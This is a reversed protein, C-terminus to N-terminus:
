PNLSLCTGRRTSLDCFNGSNGRRRKISKKNKSQRKKKEDIKEKLLAINFQRSQSHVSFNGLIPVIKEIISEVSVGRFFERDASYRNENLCEFIEKESKDCNEVEFSIEIKFPSPVGTTYLEISRDDPKRKTKGIKFLGPMASNSLIYIYNDM